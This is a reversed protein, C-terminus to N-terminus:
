SNAVLVADVYTREHGSLDQGRDRAGDRREERAQEPDAPAEHERRQQEVPRREDAGRGERHLEHGPERDHLRHRAAHEPRQPM